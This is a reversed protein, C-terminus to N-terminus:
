RRAKLAGKRSHSQAHAPHAEVMQDAV